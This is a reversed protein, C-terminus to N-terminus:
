WSLSDFGEKDKESRTKFKWDLIKNWLVKQSLIAHTHTAHLAGSSSILDHVALLPFDAPSQPRCQRPGEKWTSEASEQYAPPWASKRESYVANANVRTRTRLNKVGLWNDELYWRWVLTIAFNIHGPFLQHKTIMRQMVNLFLIYITTRARVLGAHTCSIKQLPAKRGASTSEGRIDDGDINNKRVWTRDNGQRTM